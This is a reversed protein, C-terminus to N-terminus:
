RRTKNGVWAESRTRRAACNRHLASDQAVANYQIKPPNFLIATYDTTHFRVAVLSMTSCFFLFRCFALCYHSLFASCLYPLSARSVNVVFPGYQSYTLSSQICHLISGDNCGDMWAHMHWQWEMGEWEWPQWNGIRNCTAAGDMWGDMWPWLDHQGTTAQPWFAPRGM